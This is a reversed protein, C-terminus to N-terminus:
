EFTFNVTMSVMQGPANIIIADEQESKGPWGFFKNAFNQDNYAEEVITNVSVNVQNIEIPTDSDDAPPENVLCSGTLMIGDYLEGLAPDALLYQKLSESRTLETFLVSGNDKTDCIHWAKVGAGFTYYDWLHIVWGSEHVTAKDQHDAPLLGRSILDFASMTIKNQFNYVTPNSGDPDSVTVEWDGRVKVGESSINEDSNMSESISAVPIESQESNMGYLFLAAGPIGIVLGIVLVLMSIKSM